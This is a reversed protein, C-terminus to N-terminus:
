REKEWVLPAISLGRHPWEVSSIYWDGHEDQFIEPAHAKLYAIPERDHFDLPDRSHFVSTIHQYADDSM